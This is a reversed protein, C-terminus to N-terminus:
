FMDVIYFKGEMGEPVEWPKILSNTTYVADINGDSFVTGKFINGECHSVFLYIKEAGAEKLAAAARSFTGGYSCIDDVIIVNKGKVVDPDAIVLSEIKGTEWNRKKVGYTHPKGSDYRKAAGADPYFFVFDDGFEEHEIVQPVWSDAPLVFVRDLLAPTVDSHPDLVCVSRFNMTNIIKCFSKLTFVDTFHKTRDMRAHPVYPLILVKDFNPYKDVICQLMFLEVDNDYLWTIELVKWDEQPEPVEFHLTGDPFQKQELAIGNIKIM